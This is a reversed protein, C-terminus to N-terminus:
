FCVKIKTFLITQQWDIDGIKQEITLKEWIKLIKKDHHEDIGWSAVLIFDELGHALISLCHSYTGMSNERENKKVMQRDIEM